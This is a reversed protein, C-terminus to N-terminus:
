SPAIDRKATSTKYKADESINHATSTANERIVTAAGEIGKSASTALPQLNQQAATMAQKTRASAKQVTVEPEPFRKLLKLITYYLRIIVTHVAQKLIM